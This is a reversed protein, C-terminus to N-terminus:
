LSLAEKAPAAPTTYHAIVFPFPNAPILPLLPFLPLPPLM